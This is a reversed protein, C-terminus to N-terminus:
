FGVWGASWARKKSQEEGCCKVDNLMRFMKNKIKSITKRGVMGLELFTSIKKQIMVLVPFIIQFM